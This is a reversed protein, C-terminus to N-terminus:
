LMDEVLGPDCAEPASPVGVLPDFDHWGEMRRIEESVLIGLFEDPFVELFDHLVEAFDVLGDLFSGGSAPM